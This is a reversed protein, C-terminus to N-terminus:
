EWASRETGGANNDEELGGKKVMTVWFAKAIIDGRLYLFSM